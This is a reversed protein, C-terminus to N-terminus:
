AAFLRKTDDTDLPSTVRLRKDATAHRQAATESPRPTQRADVIAATASRGTARVAGQPTLRRSSVLRQPGLRGSRRALKQRTVQRGELATACTLLKLVTRANESSLTRVRRMSPVDALPSERLKRGGSM